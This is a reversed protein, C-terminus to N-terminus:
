LKPSTPARLLYCIAIHFRNRACSIIIRDYYLIIRCIVVHNTDPRKFITAAQWNLDLNITGAVSMNINIIEGAGEAKVCM